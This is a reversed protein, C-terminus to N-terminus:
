ETTPPWLDDTPDHEGGKILIMANMNLIDSFNKLSKKNEKNGFTNRITKM